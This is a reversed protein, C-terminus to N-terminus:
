GDRMPRRSTSAAQQRKTVLKGHSAREPEGRNKDWFKWWPKDVSASDKSVALDSGSHGEVSRTSAQDVDSNQVTRENENMIRSSVPGLVGKGKARTRDKAGSATDQPTTVAAEPVTSADPLELTSPTVDGLIPAAPQRQQPNQGRPPVRGERSDIPMGTRGHIDRGTSESPGPGRTRMSPISDQAFEQASEGLEQLSLMQSRLDVVHPITRQRPPRPPSPGDALAIRPLIPEAKDTARRQALTSTSPGLDSALEPDSSTGDNALVATLEERQALLEM